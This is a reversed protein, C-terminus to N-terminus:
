GHCGRVIGRLGAMASCSNLWATRLSLLFRAHWRVSRQCMLRNTQTVFMVALNWYSSSVVRKRCVLFLKKILISAEGFIEARDAVWFEIEGFLQDICINNSFRLIWM